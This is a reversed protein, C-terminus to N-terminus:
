TMYRGEPINKMAAFVSACEAGTMSRDIAPYLISEEKQNHASLVSLLMQEEQDSEPNQEQVKRHIAELHNRIQRHEIRMVETPGMTMGTKQEFLPFLIEEEWIIHRQLGFKFERFHEKAKTFDTRKLEQFRKLLGDLRDHDAEFYTKIGQESM